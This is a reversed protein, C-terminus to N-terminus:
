TPRFIPLEYHSKLPERAKLLSSPRFTLLLYFSFAFSRNHLNEDLGESALGDSELDLGGVGDVVDLGLDLVLFADRGVLLAEDEGALLELVAASERVVVNLLLRGEVQHETETTAESRRQECSVARYVGIIEQVVSVVRM